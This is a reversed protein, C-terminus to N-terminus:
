RRPPASATTGAAYSRNEASRRSCGRGQMSAAGRSVAFAVGAREAAQVVEQRIDERSVGRRGYAAAVTAVVDEVCVPHGARIATSIILQVAHSAGFAAGFSPEPGM